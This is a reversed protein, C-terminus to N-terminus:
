YCCCYYHDSTFHERSIGIIPQNKFYQFIFQSGIGFHLLTFTQNSSYIRSNCVCDVLESETPTVGTYYISTNKGKGCFVFIQQTYHTTDRQQPQAYSNATPTIFFSFRQSFMMYEISSFRENHAGKEAIRLTVCEITRGNFM